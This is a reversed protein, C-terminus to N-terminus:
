QRQVTRKLFWPSILLTSANLILRVRSSSQAFPTFIVKSLNGVNKLFHVNFGDPGPAKDAPMRKVVLDVEEQLIPAALSDLDNVPTVLSCLDFLMTLSSTTGM